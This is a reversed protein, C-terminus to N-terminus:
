RLWDYIKITEEHRHNLGNYGGNVKKTVKRIVADNVGQDCTEWVQNRNFFWIASEMAYESALLDPNYMVQPLNMDKSFQLYNNRGTCQLFGRGRFLWGDGEQVNGLKGRPTRYADMYVFNAIKEPQREFAKADEKTKFYRKFVKNLADASYNLNESVHLFSGSEHVVQGLLHAARRNSLDYHKQIARATQPGFSGDPASGIKSQLKQLASAM